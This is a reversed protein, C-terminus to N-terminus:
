AKFVQAPDIANLRHLPILSALISMVMTIVFVLGIQQNSLEHIFGPVYFRAFGVVAISLLYGVIFGIVGSALSQILAVGYLGGSTYGIAKLVGYERSKEVTATFITLGIVAVGTAVAIILLVGVIPLFSDRVIAANNDLFQKREMVSLGLEDNINAAALTPDASKVLYYNTLGNFDLIARLDDLRMVAYSYVLVNGGSSIGVIKFVEKNINLEDNLNLKKEQAFTEDVIIESRNLNKRGELLKYPGVAGSGDDGVVFLHAEMGDIEFSVQRAVFPRVSDVGAIKELQSEITDPLISFTHTMDKSGSQGIWLDSDVNGLFRTIQTQWGLFLGLLVLILTVAFAVGGITIALRGKEGFLNRWAILFM